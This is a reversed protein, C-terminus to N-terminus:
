GELQDVVLLLICKISAGCVSQKDEPETKKVEKDDAVVAKGVAQGICDILVEKCIGRVLSRWM